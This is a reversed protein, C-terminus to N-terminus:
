LKYFHDPAFMIQLKSKPHLRTSDADFKKIM